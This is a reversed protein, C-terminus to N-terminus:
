NASTEGGDDDGPEPPLRRTEPAHTIDGGHTMYLDIARALEGIRKGLGVMTKLDKGAIPALLTRSLMLHADHLAAIRDQVPAERLWAEYQKRIDEIEAKEADTPPKVDHRRTALADELQLSVYDPSGFFPNVPVELQRTCFPCVAPVPTPLEARCGPCLKVTNAKAM